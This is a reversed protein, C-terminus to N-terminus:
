LVPREEVLHLYVSVAMKLNVQYHMKVLRAHVGHGSPKRNIRWM